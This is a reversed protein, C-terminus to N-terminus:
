YGRSARELQASQRARIIERHNFFWGVVIGVAVLWLASQGLPRVSLAWLLAAAGAFAAAVWNGKRPLEATAPIADGLVQGGAAALQRFGDDAALRGEMVERATIRDLLAPNILDGEIAEKNLFNLYEARHAEKIRRATNEDFVTDALIGLISHARLLILYEDQTTAKQHLQAIEEHWAMWDGGEAMREDLSAIEPLV